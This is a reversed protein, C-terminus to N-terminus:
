RNARRWHRIEKWVHPSMAYVSVSVSPVDVSSAGLVRCIVVVRVVCSCVSMFEIVRLLLGADCVCCWSETAAGHVLLSLCM